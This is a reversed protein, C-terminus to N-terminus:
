LDPCFQQLSAGIFKLIIQALKTHPNGLICNLSCCQLKEAPRANVGGEESSRSAFCCFNHDMYRQSVRPLLQRRLLDKVVLVTMDMECRTKRAKVNIMDRCVCTVRGVRGFDISYYHLTLFFISAINIHEELMGVYLM